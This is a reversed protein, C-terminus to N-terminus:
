SGADGAARRARFRYRDVGVAVELVEGDLTRVAEDAGDYATLGSGDEALAFRRFGGGPHHVVLVEEGDLEIREVACRGDQDSGFESGPGIACQVLEAQPEAIPDPAPEPSADDGCAALAACAILTSARM